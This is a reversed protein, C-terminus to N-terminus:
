QGNTGKRGQQRQERVYKARATTLADGGCLAIWRRISRAHAHVEAEIGAWGVKIFTDAFGAPCPRFAAREGKAPM